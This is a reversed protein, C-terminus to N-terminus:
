NEIEFQQADTGNCDYLQINTGNATNSQTVDICKSYDIWSHFSKTIGNYTWKQANTGNCDYLQINAGNNTKSQTLDLCKNRDKNFRIANGDFFWNQATGYNCDYLQINAGNDTNGRYVDVCKKTNAAYLIRNYNGSIAPTTARDVDWRQRDPRTCDWLQANSGNPDDPIVVDLCKNQDVVSRITKSIGDYIWRQGQTSSCTWLQINTGNATRSYDLDICKNLDKELKIVFGDFAWAQSNQGNCSRVRINTGVATRGDADDLCQGTNHTFRITHYLDSIDTFQYTAFGDETDTTTGNAKRFESRALDPNVYSGGGGGAHRDLGGGGGSYGGGGGATFILNHSYHVGGGGFGYGHGSGYGKPLTSPAPVKPLIIDSQPNWGNRYGFGGTHIDYADGNRGETGGPYADGGGGGDEGTEAQRGERKVTCCDSYAGGGGGAVVLMQWDPDNPKRFLIGTGGGGASGTQGQGTYTEGQSGVIFRLTAGPPIMNAGTGIEFIASITAGSGGAVRFRTAGDIEKVHRQGGDAGEAQLLLYKFKSNDPVRFEEPAGSSEIKYLNGDSNLAHLYSGSAWLKQGSTNQLILNRDSQLKLLNASQGSPSWIVKGSGDKICLKGDGAGFFLTAGMNETNSAWIPQDDYYYLVLNGDSQWNLTVHDNELITCAQNTTLQDTAQNTGPIKLGGKYLLANQAMAPYSIGFSFVLLLFIGAPYSKGAPLCSDIENKM